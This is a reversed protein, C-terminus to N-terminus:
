FVCISVTDHTDCRNHQRKTGLGLRVVLSTHDYKQARGNLKVNGAACIVSICKLCPPASKRAGSTNTYAIRLAQLQQLRPTLATEFAETRAKLSQKSKDALKLKKQGRAQADGQGFTGTRQASKRPVPVSSYNGGNTVAAALPLLERRIERVLDTKQTCLLHLCCRNCCQKEAMWNTPLWMDQSLTDLELMRSAIQGLSQHYRLREEAQQQLFAQALM